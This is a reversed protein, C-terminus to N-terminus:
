SISLDEGDLDNSPAIGFATIRPATSKNTNGSTLAYILTGIVPIVVLLGLIINLMKEM